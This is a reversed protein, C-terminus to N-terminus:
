QRQRPLCIASILTQRFIGANSKAYYAFRSNRCLAPFKPMKEPNQDNKPYMRFNKPMKRCKVQADKPFQDAYNLMIPCLGLM